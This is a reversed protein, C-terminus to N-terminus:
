THRTCERCVAQGNPMCSRCVERACTRCAGVAKWEPHNHCM